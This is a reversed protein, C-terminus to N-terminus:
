SIATDNFFLVLYNLPVRASLSNYIKGSYGIEVGSVNIKEIIPAQIEDVLPTSTALIDSRMNAMEQDLRGRTLNLQDKEENSLSEQELASFNLNDEGSIRQETRNYIEKAPAVIAQFIPEYKAQIDLSINHAPQEVFVIIVPVTKNEDAVELEKRLGEDIKLLDPSISLRQIESSFIEEKSGYVIGDKDRYRTTEETPDKIIIYEEKSLPSIFVESYQNDSTNIELDTAKQEKNDEAVSIPLLIGLILLLIFAHIANKNM